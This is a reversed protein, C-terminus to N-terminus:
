LHLFEQAPTGIGGASLATTASTTSMTPIRTSPPASRLGVDPNHVTTTNDTVIVEPRIPAATDIEGNDDRCGATCALRCSSLALCPLAAPYRM